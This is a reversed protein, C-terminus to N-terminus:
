MPERTRVEKWGTTQRRESIRWGTETRVLKDRYEGVSLRVTEPGGALGVAHAIFYTLTTASDDDLQVDMVNVNHQHWTTAATREKLFASVIQGGTMEPYGRYIVSADDTFLTALTDYDMADIATGYRCLTDAVALRDELYSM